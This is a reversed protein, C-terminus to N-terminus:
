AILKEIAAFIDVLEKLNSYKKQFEKLENKANQLVIEKTDESSLASKINIFAGTKTPAETQINVYARVPEKNEYGEVVVILNRIISGAQSLRYREAAITDNWEFCKHLPASEERSEDLVLEPTVQGHKAEIRELEKGATEAPCGMNFKWKYVM